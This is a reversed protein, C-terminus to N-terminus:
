YPCQFPCLRCLRPCDPCLGSLNIYSSTRSHASTDTHTDGLKPRWVDHYRKDKYPRYYVTDLFNFKVGGVTTEAANKLTVLIRLVMISILSWQVAQTDERIHAHPEHNMTITCIYIGRHYYMYIFKRLICKCSCTLNSKLQVTALSCYSTWNCIM